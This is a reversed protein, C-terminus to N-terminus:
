DGQKQNPNPHYKSMDLYGGPVVFASDPVARRTVSIVELDNRGPTSWIRLPFVGAADVAGAWSPPAAPNKSAGTADPFVFRGLAPTACM